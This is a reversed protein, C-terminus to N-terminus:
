NSARGARLHHDLVPDTQQQGRHTPRGGHLCGPSTISISVALRGVQARTHSSFADYCRKPKYNSGKSIVITYSFFFLEMESKKAM